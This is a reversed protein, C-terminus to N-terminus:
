SQSRSGNLALLAALPCLIAGLMAATWLHHRGNGFVFVANLLFWVVLPHHDPPFTVPKKNILAPTVFIVILLATMAWGFFNSVPVGYWHVPIKAPGWAWYHKVQTAYVELNLDAILALLVTLGILWFGYNPLARWPRLILRATGRSTLLVVLWLLPISWPLPPFLPPGAHETFTFFGFPIGTLAGLTVAGGALLVILFSVLLVNQGPLQRTMSVLTTATALLLLLAAPWDGLTSKTPPLWFGALVWGFQLLFLGFLLGHVGKALGSVPSPDLRVKNLAIRTM